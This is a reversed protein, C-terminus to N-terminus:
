YNGKSILNETFHNSVNKNLIIQKIDNPFIKIKNIEKIDIWKFNIWDGELGNFDLNEINDTYIAKYIINLQHNDYGKANVFEESLALFSFDLNDYGIEEKIERKITNVSEELQEIRGGPLMYFDRGEINFLLVKTKEKNYILASARVNFRFNDRIFDLNKNDKM